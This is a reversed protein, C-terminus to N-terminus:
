RDRMIAMPHVSLSRLAAVTGSILVAVAPLLLALLWARLSPQGILGTGSLLARQLAMSCLAGAVCGAFVLRGSEILSKLLIRWGQAGFALHLALIKRRERHVDSQISFVGIMSVVLAALASALAILTAIRLPAFASRTLQTDLTEIDPPAADRGPVVEIKSRLEAMKQDDAKATRLILTMRLPYEQWAPIFVTPEAHQQFVGLDQSRVVGIIETQGGTHDIIGAGLPKGSFFLDAAEQNIVGVRRCLNSFQAPDSFWHGAALPLGLAQM